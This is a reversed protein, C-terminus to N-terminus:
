LTAPPCGSPEGGNRQGHILATSIRAPLTSIRNLLGGRSFFIRPENSKQAVKKKRKKYPKKRGLGGGGNGKHPRLRGQHSLVRKKRKTRFKLGNRVFVQKTFSKEGVFGGGTTAQVCAVVEHALITKGQASEAPRKPMSDGCGGSQHCFPPKTGELGPQGRVNKSHFLGYVFFL